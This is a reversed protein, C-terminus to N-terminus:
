ILSKGARRRTLSQSQQDLSALASEALFADLDEPLTPPRVDGSPPRGGRRPGLIVALVLGLCAALQWWGAFASVCFM